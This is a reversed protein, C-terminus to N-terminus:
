APELAAARELAIRVIAGRGPELEEDVRGGQPAVLARALSLGGAPVRAPARLEVTVSAPGARVELSVESGAPLAAAAAALLERLAARVPRDDALARADTRGDARVRVRVGPPSPFTEALDEVLASLDVVRRVGGQGAAALAAVRRAGTELAAEAAALAAGARSGLPPAALRLISIAEAADGVPDALADAAAALGARAEGRAPWPARAGRPLPPPRQRTVPFPRLVALAWAPRATVRVVAARVRAPGRPGPVAIRASAPGRELGRALAALEPAVAAVERDVLDAVAIGLLRGAASNAHGIRGAADLALVADGLADPIAEALLALDPPVARRRLVSRRLAAFAVVAALLAGLEVARVPRFTAVRKGVLFGSKLFFGHGALACPVRGLPRLCGRLLDHM